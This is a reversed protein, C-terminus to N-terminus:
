FTKVADQRRYPQDTQFLALRSHIEDALEKQQGSLALEYAKQATKVALAFRGTEAYAVSLVDLTKADQSKLRENVPKALRVAEEGDRLKADPTTSLLWALRLAIPMFGPTFNLGRRFTAIAEADRNTEMYFTGLSLYADPFRPDLRLSKEVWMEAEEIRGMEFVLQGLNVYATLYNPALTIATRYYSIAEDFRNIGRALNAIYNYGVPDPKYQLAMSHEQIAEQILGRGQYYLGRERYWFTSVGQMILENYVPDELPIIKPLRQALQLEKAAEDPKNLRRYVEALVGHAERHRPETEVAQLLFTLSKQLDNQSLSIKGLGLYALSLNKDLALARQFAQAADELRGAKYLARAYVTYLPAYDPRLVQCRKFWEFTELSGTESLATAIYYSWDFRDPSLKLAQKYCPISEAEFGHIDLVMALNAWAQASDPEKEVQLRSTHIKEVVQKEIGTLNPNPLNELGSDANLFFRVGLFLALGLLGVALFGFLMKKLLM